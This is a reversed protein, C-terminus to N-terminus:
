NGGKPLPDAADFKHCWVKDGVIPFMPQIHLQGHGAPFAMPTPPGFRCVLVDQLLNPQPRERSAFRCNACCREIEITSDIGALKFM